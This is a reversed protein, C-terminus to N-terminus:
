KALERYAAEHDPLTSEFAEKVEEASAYRIVPEKELQEPALPSLEVSSGDHLQWEEALRSPVEIVFGKTTKQVRAVMVM